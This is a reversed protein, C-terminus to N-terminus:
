RTPKVEMISIANSDDNITKSDYLSLFLGIAQRQLDALSINKEEAISVMTERMEPKCPTAPLFHTLVPKRNNAM